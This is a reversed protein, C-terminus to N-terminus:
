SRMAPWSARCSRRRRRKAASSPSRCRRALVITELLPVAATTRGVQEIIAAVELFGLGAGGYAEPIAIGLLGAKAVEGVARPRFRPGGSREIAKLREPTSREGLLRKALDIIAQQEDTYSFDM